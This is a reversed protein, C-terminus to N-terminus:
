KQRKVKSKKTKPKKTKPKKAKPKTAKSKKVKPKKPPSKIAYEIGVDLWKQLQKDTKIGAAAIYLFGTMPRGTFDMERAHPKKLLSEYDGALCRVMLDDKVIGVMMKDKYMYAIGGFLKKEIVGKQPKLLKTIREALKESYAM